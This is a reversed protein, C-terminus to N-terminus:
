TAPMSTISPATATTTGVAPASLGNGGTAGTDMEKIVSGDSLKLIFLAATGSSSNIGNSAIIVTTGDNM